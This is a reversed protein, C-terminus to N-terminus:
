RPGSPRHASVANRTPPPRPSRPAYVGRRLRSVRGAALLASLASHVDGPMAAALDAAAIGEPHEAVLAAVRGALSDARYHKPSTRAETLMWRILADGDAKALQQLKRGGLFRRVPKLDMEYSYLTM